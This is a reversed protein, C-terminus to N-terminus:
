LKSLIQQLLNNQENLQQKLGDIEQRLKKAESNAAAVQNKLTLYELEEIKVLRVKTLVDPCACTRGYLHYITDGNSSLIGNASQEDTNIWRKSRPLYRVYQIERLLDVVIEGDMLKYFM